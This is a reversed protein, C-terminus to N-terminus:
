IDLLYAGKKKKGEGRVLLFAAGEVKREGISEGGRRSTDEAHHRGRETTLDRVRRVPWFLLSDRGKKKGLRERL